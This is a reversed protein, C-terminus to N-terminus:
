VRTDALAEGGRKPISRRIMGSVWRKDDDEILGLLKAGLVYIPAFVAASVVMVVAGGIFNLTGTKTILFVQQALHEGTGAIYERLNAYVFYTVFGAVVSIAATKGVSKLYPLHRLGLGLKRIVMTETIFKEILMASVATIIMGQLGFYGLGYYLACVLGLLLMAPAVFYNTKM